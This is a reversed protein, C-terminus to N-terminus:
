AGRCTQWLLGRVVDNLGACSARGRRRKLSRRHTQGSTHDLGIIGKSFRGPGWCYTFCRGNPEKRLDQAMLICIYIYINNPSWSFDLVYKCLQGGQKRLKKHQVKDRGDPMRLLSTATSKAEKPKLTSGPLALQQWRFRCAVSGKRCSATVFHASQDRCDRYYLVMHTTALM